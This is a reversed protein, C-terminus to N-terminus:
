PTLGLVSLLMAESKKAKTVYNSEQIKLVLAVLKRLNNESLYSARNDILIECAESMALAQTRKFKIYPLLDKIIGQVQKFGNIRLESMGDKRHSLYGIELIERIWELPERHRKDQYFCITCMFRWSRSKLGKRKKIQLMLSGDGDM